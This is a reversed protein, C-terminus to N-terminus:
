MKSNDGQNFLAIQERSKSDNMDQSTYEIPKSPDARCTALNIIAM